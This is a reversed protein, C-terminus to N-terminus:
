CFKLGGYCNPAFSQAGLQLNSLPFNVNTGTIDVLGVPLNGGFCNPSGFAKCEIPDKYLACNIGPTTTSACGEPGLAQSLVADTIPVASAPSISGIDIQDEFAMWWGRMADGAAGPWRLNQGQVSLSFSNGNIPLKHIFGLNQEIPVTATLGTITGTVNKELPVSFLGVDVNATMPGAFNIPAVTASGSLNVISMRNGSVVTPTTVVNAAAPTLALNYTDSSFNLTAGGVDTIRIRGTMDKNGATAKTMTRAQTMATGTASGINMYGSLSNIGNPTTTNEEGFTLLGFMQESGLQVGILERTSASNPNKIALKIFPNILRADSQVRAESDALTATQVGGVVPGTLAGPNGSLSFNDIDIDCAGAGNVGGCGLQLKKINANLELEAEMGFKYFGINGNTSNYSNGTDSPALYQLTFLSQGTAASMESDSLSHLTDSAYASNLCLSGLTLMALHLSKFRRM